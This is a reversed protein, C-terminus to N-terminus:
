TISNSNNIELDNTLLGLFWLWTDYCESEVVDYAIPYIANDPDIGVADLLQGRHPGKVFYSDFGVIPRYGTRFGKKCADMYIYLQMFKPNQDAQSHLQADCMMKITSGPNSSRM